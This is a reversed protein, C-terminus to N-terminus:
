KIYKEKRTCINIVFTIQKGGKKGRGRREDTKNRLNWMHTFDYRIQRESQSIESLTICGLEIWMMAFPLIENKRIASYYETHTHTHTHTHTCM